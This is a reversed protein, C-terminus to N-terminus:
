TIDKGSELLQQFHQQLFDSVRGPHLAEFLGLAQQRFQQRDLANWDIMWRDANLVSVRHHAAFLFSSSGTNTVVPVGSALFDLMKAPPKHRARFDNGKVDIAALATQMLGLHLQPSWRYIRVDNRSDFGLQRPSPPLGDAETLVLFPNQMRQANAWTAVPQVNCRRGTWLLPGDEVWARPKELAYGLPHDLYQTSCYPQLYRLLRPSHSLVSRFLRLSQRDGDIEAASGYRDIPMYILASNESLRRIMELPPLFKVFVIVACEAAEDAHRFSVTEFPAQLGDMLSRAVWQWSGFSPNEPGIAVRIGRNM